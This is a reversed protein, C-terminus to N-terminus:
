AGLWQALRPKGARQIAAVLLVSTSLAAVFKVGFSAFAHQQLSPLERLLIIPFIHWLYIFYSAAGVAMLPRWEFSFGLMSLCFLSAYLFFVTSDYDAADGLRYVRIAAYAVYAALCAAALAYRLNHLTDRIDTRGAIVGAAMFAFWFPLDRMRAEEIINDTAGMRQLLPDLYAGFAIGTVVALAAALVLAEGSKSGGGAAAILLWLMVTCGVYVFVYYYVFVYALGYRALITLPRHDMASNQLAMVIYAAIFAITYPGLARKIRRVIPVHRTQASLYGSAFLFVPVCPRLIADAM